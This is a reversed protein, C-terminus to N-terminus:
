DKAANEANENYWSAIQEKEGTTRDLKWLETNREGQEPQFRIFYTSDGVESCGGGMYLNFSGLDYNEISGDKMNRRYLITNGDAVKKYYLGSGSVISRATNEKELIVRQGTKVDYGFTTWTDGDQEMYCIKNGVVGLVNGKINDDTRINQFGPDSIYWKGDEIGTSVWVSDSGCRFVYNGSETDEGTSLDIKRGDYNIKGDGSTYYLYNDYICFKANPRASKTLVTQNEGNMDMSIIESSMESSANTKRWYIKDQYVAMTDKYQGSISHYGNKIVNDVTYVEGNYEWFIASSVTATEQTNQVSDNEQSAVCKKEDKVESEPTDTKECLVNINPLVIKFTNRTTEIVPKEAVDAYAGIIKSIGTGCAEILHLRYFVNALDPNRCISIGAMVDELEIGPM